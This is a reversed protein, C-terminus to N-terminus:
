LAEEVSDDFAMVLSISATGPSLQRSSTRITRIDREPYVNTRYGGGIDWV